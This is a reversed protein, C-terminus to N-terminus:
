LQNVQLIEAPKRRAAQVSPILGGILCAVIAAAIVMAIFEPEIKSPIGDIAYVNPDWMQWGYKAELWDEIDNVKILFACGGVSGLLAGVLGIVASFILFIALIEQVSLGISKLIGIDKSKHSIIMYMVVFIIFVTIIGLLMFSMTMMVQEKEMPAIIRRRNSQWSQVRVHKFLNAGPKDAYQVTHAQWLSDIKEIAAAAHVGDAFKIHISSIRKIPTDMGCLIQAQELPLYIAMSDVRVIGSDSEDCYSFTKTNVLGAGSKALLGNINLPFSTVTFKWPNPEPEYYCTGDAQKHRGIIDAGPICGDLEPAYSPTFAQALNKTYHLTQGFGTAQSHLVPDIGYVEIGTGGPARYFKAMGIGKAVPSAAKVEPQNNLVELFDEYYGFGVLSDSAIVCDGAFDHNKEKFDGVLGNMVSMVVVVIFVCLTVAVVALISIPRKIFYRWALIWKIM